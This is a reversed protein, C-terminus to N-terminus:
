ESALTKSLCVASVPCINKFEETRAIPAPVLGRHTIRFGLREFFGKATTTLLFLTKIGKRYAHSELERVLEVGLGRGRYSPDVALSRLLGADQYPEVGISGIVINKKSEAVLFERLKDVTLDETPLDVRSLLNLIGTEDGTGVTQIRIGKMKLDGLQHKTLQSRLDSDVYSEGTM